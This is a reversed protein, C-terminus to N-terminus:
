GRTLKDHGLGPKTEPLRRGFNNTFVPLGIKAPERVWILQHEKKKKRKVRITTVSMVNDQDKQPERRSTDRSVRPARAEIGKLRHQIDEVIGQMSPIRRNNSAKLAAMQDGFLNLQQRHASWNRPQVINCLRTFIEDLERQEHM